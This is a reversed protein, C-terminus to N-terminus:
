YPKTFCGLKTVDFLYKGKACTTGEYNTGNFNEKECQNQSMGGHKRLTIAPDTLECSGGDTPKTNFINFKHYCTRDELSGEPTKDDTDTYYYTTVTGDVSKVRWCFNQKCESVCQPCLPDVAMLALLMALCACGCFSQNM